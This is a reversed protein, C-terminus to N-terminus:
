SVKEFNNLRELSNFNNPSMIQHEFVLGISECEQKSVLKIESPSGSVHVVYGMAKIADLLNKVGLPIEGYHFSCKKDRILHYVVAETPNNALM